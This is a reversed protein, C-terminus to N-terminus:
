LTENILEVASDPEGLQTSLRLLPDVSKTGRIANVTHCSKKARNSSRNCWKREATSIEEKVKHKWYEYAVFNHQRYSDWRKQIYLKLLPTMWPKDRETFLVIHQPICREVFYSMVKHFFDCKLECSEDSMYFAHWNVKQLEAVFLDVNSKRLDFIRKKVISPLLNNNTPLAFVSSHDSNCIPANITVSYDSSLDETVYFLDLVSDRRTPSKM